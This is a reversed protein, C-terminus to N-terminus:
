GRHVAITKELLAHLRELKPVVTADQYDVLNSELANILQDAHYTLRWGSAKVNGKVQKATVKTGALHRNSRKLLVPEGNADVAFRAQRLAEYKEVTLALVAALDAPEIGLRIAVAMCHAEDLRSIRLGHRANLKAADLFLEQETPYDRWEVTCTAEDGLVRLYAKVRHFGDVLRRSRRDAVVPPFTEGARLAEALRAVHADDTVSRPYLSYDFVLEAALVTSDPKRTPM